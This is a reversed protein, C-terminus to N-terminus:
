LELYNMHSCLGKIVQQNWSEIMYWFWVSSTEYRDTFGVRCIMYNWRKEENSTKVWFSIQMYRQPMVHWYDGSGLRRHINLTRALSQLLCGNHPPWVFNSIYLYACISTRQKQHLFRGKRQISGCKCGLFLHQLRDTHFIRIFCLLLSNAAAFYSRRTFM